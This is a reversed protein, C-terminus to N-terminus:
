ITIFSKQYCGCNELVDKGSLEGRDKAVADIVDQARYLGIEIEQCTLSSDKAQYESLVIARVGLAVM